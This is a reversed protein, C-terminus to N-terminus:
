KVVAIKIFEVSNESDSEAEVRALYVGSEINAVDWVIEHDGATVQGAPLEQVFEGAIDYIRVGLKEATKTLTYRIHTRNNETPNPYCFVKKAPLLGSASVIRRSSGPLSFTKYQDGGYQSWSNSNATELPLDWGYLFGDTSIVFLDVDGDSDIDTFLPTAVIDDSTTLPFGDLMRARADYATLLGAPSAVFTIPKQGAENKLWLPSALSVPNLIPSAYPKAFNSVPVGTYEFAQFLGSANLLIEPVGDGDADGLAPASMEPLDFNMNNEAIVNGQGDIVLMMGNQSIIVVQQGSAGDFDAVLPFLRGMSQGSNIQWIINLDTDLAFVDGQDTVAICDAFQDSVGALGTIKGGKFNRFNNENLHGDSFSFSHINGDSTGLIIVPSAAVTKPLIMPGATPVAGFNTSALLDAVGNGDTDQVSWLYIKGAKDAAVIEDSGDGDFDAAVPPLFISDEAVAFLALDHVITDGIADQLAVKADNAILKEGNKKWGLVSGDRRVAILDNGSNNADHFSLLSAAGFDKGAYQPFGTQAWDSGVSFTMVTDRASFNFFRVHSVAGDNANSNPITKSALEVNEAHDNVIKHSENGNWYPDWYDGSDTGYGADFMSYNFGIDQAGDCEVLDVGRHDRDNNITNSALKQRIVGDDIHWVLIGSGPLGYDYEDVHTIVGIDKDAVIQGTSDFQARKGAEDRGFTMKDGNWDQQRNELLFYENANIPIKYIHPSVSNAIGIRLQEASTVVVPKEWGMYIKMWACPQAPVLGQFNYSGQDMLGWKGIGADGSESNFLVPMGLQSGMLLTMTGLLALNLGDQNQTEPLIIGEKIFTKSKTPVGNFSDDGNGLTEKLSEFDLFVSQIDYPTSDFDFAFDAGVGAHFVTVVDYASFDPGNEVDAANVADRLLEAWRQKKLDDNEQGSYYVMDQPLQYAADKEQPFVDAQLVLKGRSVRSFYNALALMQQQFYTRNHPPRDFAYDSQSSLDFRGDGSTTAVNDQVFEARLALIHITDVGAVRNVKNLLYNSVAELPDNVTIALPPNELSVNSKAYSQNIILFLLIIGFFINRM